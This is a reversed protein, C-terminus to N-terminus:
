TQEAAKRRGTQRRLAWKVVKTSVSRIDSLPLTATIQRTKEIGRQGLMISEEINLRAGSMRFVWSASAGPVRLLVDGGISLSASIRPHLHFRIVAETPIARPSGTYVLTDEGRLDHGGTALFIRRRHRIGHTMEYGDHSAEALLGGPAPGMEVDRAMARRAAEGPDSTDGSNTKDLTLTSHAATGALATALEPRDRYLGRSQGANIFIRQQNNSFEVALAGADNHSGHDIATSLAWSPIGTNMLLVSRGSTLRIFGSDSANHTVKGSPAARQLIQEVEDLSTDLSGLINMLSGDAHRWMRGIAGMRLITDDISELCNRAASLSAHGTEDGTLSIRAGLATRVDILSRLHAFHRDPQRSAHCGDGLLHQHLLDTYRSALPTIDEDQDLFLIGPIVASLAHLQDDQDPIRHWDRRLCALQTALSLVMSQQQSESASAAFWGWTFIWAKIRSGMPKPHWVEKHWRGDRKIWDLVLRRTLTRSQSGGFERMDRLWNFHHWAPGVREVPHLGSALVQGITADGRWIDAPQWHSPLTRTKPRIRWEFLASRRYLREPFSLSWTDPM